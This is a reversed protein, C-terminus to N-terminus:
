VGMFKAGNLLSLEDPSSALYEGNQDLMIGHNLCISLLM